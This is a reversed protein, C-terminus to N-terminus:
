KGVLSATNKAKMFQQCYLEHAKPDDLNLFLNQISEQIYRVNRSNFRVFHIGEILKGDRRWQNLTCPSISLLKAAEQKNILTAM